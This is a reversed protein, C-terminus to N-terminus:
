SRSFILLFSFNPMINKTGEPYVLFFDGGMADQSRGFDMIASKCSKKKMKIQFIM